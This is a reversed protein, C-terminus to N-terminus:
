TATGEILKIGPITDFESWNLKNPSEGCADKVVVIEADPLQERLGRAMAVVCRNTCCGMLRFSNTACFNGRRCGGIIVDAGDGAGLKTLRRHAPYDQLLDLLRKDMPGFWEDNWSFYDVTVSIVPCSLEKATIIERQCNAIVEDTVCRGWPCTSYGDEGLRGPQVDVLLLTYPKMRITMFVEEHPNQRDRVIADTFSVAQSATHRKV